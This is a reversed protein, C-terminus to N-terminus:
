NGDGAGSAIRHPALKEKGITKRYAIQRFNDSWIVHNPPWHTSLNGLPWLSCVTFRGAFGESTRIRGEGGGLNARYSITAAHMAMTTPVVRSHELFDRALDIRIERWQRNRPRANIEDSPKGAIMPGRLETPLASGQYPLPEGTRARDHAGDKKAARKRHVPIRVRDGGRWSGSIRNQCCPMPHTSLM